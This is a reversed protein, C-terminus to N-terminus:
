HVACIKLSKFAVQCSIIPGVSIQTPSTTQVLMRCSCPSPHALLINEHELRTTFHCPSFSTETLQVQRHSDATLLFCLEQLIACAENVGCLRNRAPESALGTTLCRRPMARDPTPGRQRLLFPRLTSAALGAAVQTTRVVGCRYFGGTVVEM